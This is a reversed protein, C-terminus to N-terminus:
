PVTGVAVVAGQDPELAYAEVSAPVVVTEWEDLRESWSDGRVTAGGVLTSVVEVSRGAPARRDAARVLELRFLGNELTGGDLAWGTGAPVAHAAPRLARLAEEVHLTRGTPRGWDSVRFTIDSPQEIEYVFAGAGIAHITGPELLLVDGARARTTTCGDMGLEGRAIRALLEVEPLAPAPGTVLSTEPTADIVVWAEAKGVAAPGYIARALDDDPHVQLSLWDEADILKTLLPFRAGLLAMGREGVLAAGHQSALEDLTFTTSDDVTVVSDPGALWLEGVRAEPTGLRHGAWPRVSPAPTPRLPALTM